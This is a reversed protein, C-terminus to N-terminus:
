GNQVERSTCYGIVFHNIESDDCLKVRHKWDNYSFYTTPGIKCFRENYKYCRIYLRKMLSGMEKTKKGM